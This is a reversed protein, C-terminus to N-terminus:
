CNDKSHRLDYGCKLCHGTKSRLRRRRLAIIGLLPLPLTLLILFWFPIAIIKFNMPGLPGTTSAFGLREVHTSANSRKLYAVLEPTGRYQDDAPDFPSWGIAPLGKLRAASPSGVGDWFLLILRGQDSELRSKKPLYSRPWSYLFILCLILCLICLLNWFWRSM